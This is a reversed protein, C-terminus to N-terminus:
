YWLRSAPAPKWRRRSRPPRRRAGSGPRARATAVRAFRQKKSMRRDHSALGAAHQPSRQCRSAATPLSRTLLHRKM